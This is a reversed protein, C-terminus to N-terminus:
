REVPGDAVVLEGVAHGPGPHQEEEPEGSREHRRRDGREAPEVDGSGARLEDPEHITGIRDPCASPRVESGAPVTRVSRSGCSPSSRTSTSTHRTTAARVCHWTARPLRDVIARGSEAAVNGDADGHWWSVPARVDEPAFGWPRDVRGIDETPGRNGHARGRAMAELSARVEEPHRRAYDSEVSGGRSALRVLRDIGRASRPTSLSYLAAFIAPWRVALAHYRRSAAPMTVRFWPEAYPGSGAAIALLPIRDALRHGVALAYAGGLSHDFVAFRPLDLADALAAVDDAYARLPSGAVARDSDGLGPRDIAIVRVGQAVAASHVLAGATGSCGSGPLVLVPPGDPTGFGYWALTRGDPLRLHSTEPATPPTM